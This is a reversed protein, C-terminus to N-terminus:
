NIKIPKIELTDTSKTYTIELNGNFDKGLQNIELPAKDRSFFEFGLFTYTVPNVKMNSVNTDFCIKNANCTESFSNPTAPPPSPWSCLCLCSKWGRDVCYPVNYEKDSGVYPWGVLAWGQPNYLIYQFSGGNERTKLESIKGQINSIHARAQELESKKAFIDYMKIALYLLLVICLVGILLKLTEPLLIGKKNKNSNIKIKQLKM